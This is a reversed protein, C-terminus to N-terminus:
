WKRKTQLQLCISNNRDGHDYNVSENELLYFFLSLYNVKKKM